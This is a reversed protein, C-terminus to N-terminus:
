EAENTQDRHEDIKMAEEYCQACLRQERVIEWGSVVRVRRGDRDLLEYSCQRKHAV